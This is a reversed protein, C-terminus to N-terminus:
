IYGQQYQLDVPMGRAGHAMKSKPQGLERVPCSSLVATSSANNAQPTTLIFGRTSGKLAVLPQSSHCSSTSVADKSHNTEQLKAKLCATNGASSMAAHLNRVAATEKYPQPEWAHPLTSRERKSQANQAKVGGGRNRM